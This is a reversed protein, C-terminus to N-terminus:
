VFPKAGTFSESQTIENGHHPFILDQGGGHIDLSAGLYKLSMATCEIHWGPRGEGWPSKWSPEGPKVAKWLVFDMPHQKEDGVEGRAGAMMSDLTRHSLKGYDAVKTIRFYVSGNAAYAFGKDVLGQIVEIIKPVEETARPYVDARKINLADMDAFFSEVFKVALENPPVGLRNARDIIKDDIDTINQVHKGKYGRFLLYRRTADFYISSMAHGMHSHDYPTVGCVYMRVADPNPAFEEKQRSLTNYVKMRSELKRSRSTMALGDRHRMPLRLLRPPRGCALM